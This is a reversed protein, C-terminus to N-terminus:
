DITILIGSCFIFYRFDFIHLGLWVDFFCILHMDHGTVLYYCDMVWYRRCTTSAESAALAPWHAVTPQARSHYLSALILSPLESAEQFHRPM